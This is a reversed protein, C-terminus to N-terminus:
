SYLKTIALRPWRIIRGIFSLFNSSLKKSNSTKYIMRLIKQEQKNLILSTSIRMMWLIEFLTSVMKSRLHSTAIFYKAVRSTSNKVLFQLIKKSVDGFSCPMEKFTNLFLLGDEIVFYLNSPPLEM